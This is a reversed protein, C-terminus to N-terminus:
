RPARLRLDLEARLEPSASALAARVVAQEQDTLRADRRALVALLADAPLPLTLM